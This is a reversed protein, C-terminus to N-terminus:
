TSFSSTTPAAGVPPAGVVDWHDVIKSDVLTRRINSTKRYDNEFDYWHYIDPANGAFNGEYSHWLVKSIILWYQNLYHSPAMLCCALVQALTSRSRHRWITDRPWFSSFLESSQDMCKDGPNRWYRCFCLVWGNWKQMLKAELKKDRALLNLPSISIVKDTQTNTPANMGDTINKIYRCM